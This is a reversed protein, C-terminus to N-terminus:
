GGEFVSGSAATRRGVFSLCTPGTLLKYAALQIATTLRCVTRVRGRALRNRRAPAKTSADAEPRFWPSLLPLIRDARSVLECRTDAGQLAPADQGGEQSRSRTTCMGLGGTARRRCDRDASRYLPVHRLIQLVRALEGGGLIHLDAGPDAAIQRLQVELVALDDALAVEQHDDVGPGELHLQLLRGCQAVGGGCVDVVGSAVNGAGGLQPLRLGNGQRRQVLPHLRHLRRDCGQVGGVGRDALRLKVQLEAVDHRRDRAPGAVVLDRDAVQDHAAGGGGVLCQQGGDHRQVRHQEVEVHALAVEQGILARDAAPLDAGRSSPVGAWTRSSSSRSQVRM